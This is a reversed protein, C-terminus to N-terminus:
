YNDRIGELLKGLTNKGPYNRLFILDSNYTCGSGWFCENSLTPKGLSLFLDVLIDVKTEVSTAQTLKDHIHGGEVFPAFALPNFKVPNASLSQSQTYSQGLTPVNEHSEMSDTSTGVLNFDLNQNNFLLDKSPSLDISHPPHVSAPSSPSNTQTRPTTPDSTPSLSESFSISEHVTRDGRGALDSINEFINETSIQHNPRRSTTTCNSDIM